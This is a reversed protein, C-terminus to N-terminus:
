MVLLVLFGYFWSHISKQCSLVAESTIKFVVHTIIASFRNSSISLKSISLLACVESLYVASLPLSNTCPTSLMHSRMLLELVRFAFLWHSPVACCLVAHRTSLLWVSSYMIFHLWEQGVQRSKFTFGTPQTGAPSLPLTPCNLATADKPWLWIEKLVVIM